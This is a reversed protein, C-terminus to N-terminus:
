LCKAQLAIDAHDSACEKGGQVSEYKLLESSNVPGHDGGGKFLDM